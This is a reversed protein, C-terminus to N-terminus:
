QRHHVHVPSYVSSLNHMWRSFTEREWVGKDSPNTGAPSQPSPNSRAQRRLDPVTSLLLTINSSSLFHPKNRWFFTLLETQSDVMEGQVARRDDNCTINGSLVTSTSTFWVSGWQIRQTQPLPPTFSISDVTLLPLAPSACLQCQVPLSSAHPTPTEKGPLTQRYSYLSWM